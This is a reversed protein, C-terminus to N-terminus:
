KTYSGRILKLQVVARWGHQKKLNHNKKIEMLHIETNKMDTYKKM